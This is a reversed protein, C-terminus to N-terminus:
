PQSHLIVRVPWSTVCMHCVTAPVFCDRSSGALYFQKDNSPVNICVACVLYIKYMYHCYHWMWSVIYIYIYIYIDM